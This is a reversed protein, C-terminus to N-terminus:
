HNLISKLNGGLIMATEQSGLGVRGFIEMQQDFVDRRWGRPFFSSDSGFLVRQPGM